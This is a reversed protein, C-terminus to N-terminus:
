AGVEKMLTELVARTGEERRMIERLHDEIAPLLGPSRPQDADREGDIGACGLLRDRLGEALERNRYSVILVDQLVRDISEARTEAMAESSEVNLANHNM